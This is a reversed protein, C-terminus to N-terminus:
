IDLRIIEAEVSVTDVYLRAVSLPLKFRRPGASGPNLYLIGNSYTVLPKHSHGSIVAKFGAVSPDLDMNKVDHLVYLHINQIEVIKTEAFEKAWSGKDCNGRVAVVQAIKQLGELIQVNGIDGAHIIMESNKLIKVAEPRLLGHTDSIVGITKRKM